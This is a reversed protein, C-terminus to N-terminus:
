ISSLDDAFGHFRALGAQHSDRGDGECVEVIPCSVVNMGMSALDAEAGPYLGKLRICGTRADPNPIRFLLEVISHQRNGEVGKRTEQGIEGFALRQSLLELFEFCRRYRADMEPEVPLDRVKRVSNQKVARNLPHKVFGHQEAVGA